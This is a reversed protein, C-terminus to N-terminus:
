NLLRGRGTRHYYNSTSYGIFNICLRGKPCKEGHPIDLGCGNARDITNLPLGSNWDVGNAATRLYKYGHIGTINPRVGVTSNLGAMSGFQCTNNTYLNSGLKSIKKGPM